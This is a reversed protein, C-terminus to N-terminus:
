GIIPTLFHPDGVKSVVWAAAVQVMARVNFKVSFVSVGVIKDTLQTAELYTQFIPISPAASRWCPFAYNNRERALNRNEIVQGHLGLSVKLFFAVRM